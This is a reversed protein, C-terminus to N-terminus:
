ETLTRPRRAANASLPMWRRISVLWCIVVLLYIVASLRHRYAGWELGGLRALMAFPVLAVLPLALALLRRELCLALSPLVWVLYWPWIYNLALLLGVLAATVWAMLSSWTREQLHHWGYAVIVLVVLARWALIFYRAAAAPMHALSLTWTIAGVMSTHHWADMAHFGALPAGGHWYSAFVAGAASGATALALLSWRSRRILADIAAVGILPATTYKVLASAVLLYGSSPRMALVLWGTLVAIMVVDNHGEGVQQQVSAPFWGAILMAATQHMPSAHRLAAFVSGVILLFAALFLVKFCAFETTVAAFQLVGRSIWLWIPGYMMTISLYYPGLPHPLGVLQEGSLHDTYANGGAAVLRAGAIYYSLDNSQFPTCFACAVGFAVAFALALRADSRRAASPNRFLARLVMLPAVTTVLFFGLFTAV